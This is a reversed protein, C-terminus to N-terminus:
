SPSNPEQTRAHNVRGTDNEVGVDFLGQFLELVVFKGDDAAFQIELRGILVDVSNDNSQVSTFKFHLSRSM